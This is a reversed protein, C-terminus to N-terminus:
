VLVAERRRRAEIEHKLGLELLQGVDVILSVRGDGTINAGAIGPVNTYRDRLPKIVVDEEGILSDVVLGIKKEGSGVIVVFVHEAEESTVVRFVRGLRLLSVVDERVNLVEVNDLTRIEDARIRQSEIVTAIPIVYVEQGVKVTLGQIIAVTLPIRITFTTGVDVASRLTVTGNMKEIQRRVVDLGVGRGSISSVERATSFGPEFILDYAETDSLVKGPHIVGREVAKQRVSDVDIGRGDDTIEITIMNGESSARLLLNGAEPKGLALRQEPSEIGHDISNRACHILPDLLDEIVSKDLETDEGEMRLAVNKGLLRTLDRVLRPFRSFLQSIPVMRIRMVGEQLEGTIRGLSQAIGRLRSVSQRFRAGAPEFQAYLHGFQAAIEAKIERAPAGCQMRELYAPMADFLERLSSRYSEESAAFESLADSLGAAAINFAAKNIVAESVLNLLTDVRRSDVRLVSNGASSSRRPGRSVDPAEVPSADTPEGDGNGDGADFGGAGPPVAVLDPGDDAREGFVGDATVLVPGPACDGRRMGGAGGGPQSVTVAITVDSLSVAREIEDIPVDTIVYYTVIPHFDDHYLTDFDPITELVTGIQKLAAFAQIGGVSNMPNSEDFEVRVEFVPGDEGSANLLEQVEDSGLRPANPAPDATPGPSGLGVSARLRDVIASIDDVSVDGESRATLMTKIIDIASLLLDVLEPTVASSASRIEDLVDEVLHTFETLEHMQVAASAGKLTHAARFIEDLAAKDSPDNELVLINSELSEIQSQAESYFDQLLEENDPDLYDSM